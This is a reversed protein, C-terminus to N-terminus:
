INFLSSLNGEHNSNKRTSKSKGKPKNNQNKNNQNKNNQNKNTKNKTKNKNIGKASSNIHHKYVRRTKYPRRHYKGPTFDYSPDSDKDITLPIILEEDSLPSSFHTNNPKAIHLLEDLSTTPEEDTSITPELTSILENLSTPEDMVNIQKYMPKIPTLAPSKFDDLYINYMSPERDFRVKKFDTKLRNHIPTKVSNINLINALDKNDLKVDYHGVKGNNILDVSVNAIKGDYDADWKIENIKNHNNNHIITKTTGRNKIYTDLM